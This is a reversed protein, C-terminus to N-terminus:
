PTCSFKNLNGFSLKNVDLGHNLISDKMADVGLNKMMNTSLSVIDAKGIINKGGIQKFNYNKVMALGVSAAAIEPPINKVASALTDCM